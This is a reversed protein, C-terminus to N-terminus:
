AVPKLAWVWSSEVGEVDEEGNEEGDGDCVGDWSRRVKWFTAEPAEMRTRQARQLAM